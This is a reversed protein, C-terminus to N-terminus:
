GDRARCWRATHDRSRCSSAPGTTRGAVSRARPPAAGPRGRGRGRHICRRHSRRERCAHPRTARTRAQRRTGRLRGTRARRKRPARRPHLPRRRAMQRRRRRTCCPAARWSPLHRARAGASPASRTTAHAAARKVRSMRRGGRLGPLRTVRDGERPPGGRRSPARRGPAQASADLTVLWMAARPRPAIDQAFELPRLATLPVRVHAVTRGARGVCCAYRGRAHSDRAAESGTAMPWSARAGLM